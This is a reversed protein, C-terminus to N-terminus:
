LPLKNSRLMAHIQSETCPHAGERQSTSRGPLKGDVLIFRDIEM